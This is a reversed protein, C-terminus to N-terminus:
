VRSLNLTLPIAAQANPRQIPEAAPSFTQISKDLANFAKSHVRPVYTKISTVASKFVAYIRTKLKYRDSFPHPLWGVKRQDLALGNIARRKKFFKSRADTVGREPKRRQRQDRLHLSKSRRVPPAPREKRSPSSRNQRPRPRRSAQTTM